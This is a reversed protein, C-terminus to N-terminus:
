SGFEALIDQINIIASKLESVMYVKRIPTVEKGTNIDYQKISIIICPDVTDKGSVESTLTVGKKVKYDPVIDIVNEM